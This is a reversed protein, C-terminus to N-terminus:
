ESKLEIKKYWKNGRNYYNFVNNEIYFKIFMLSISMHLTDNISKKIAVDVLQRDHKKLM